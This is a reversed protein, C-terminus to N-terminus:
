GGSAEQFAVHSEQVKFSAQLAYFNFFIQFM